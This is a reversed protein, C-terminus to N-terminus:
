RANPTNLVNDDDEILNRNVIRGPAKYETFMRGQNANGNSEREKSSETNSNKPNKRKIFEERLKELNATFKETENM